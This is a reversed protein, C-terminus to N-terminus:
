GSWGTSPPPTRPRAAPLRRSGVGSATNVIAGGGARAHPPDGGEHLPLRRDLMVAITRDWGDDPYDALPAMPAAIGANNHACDLGGLHRRRLAVM